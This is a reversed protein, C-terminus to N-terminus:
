CFVNRTGIQKTKDDLDFPYLLLDQFRSLLICEVSIFNCEQLVRVDQCAYAMKRSM